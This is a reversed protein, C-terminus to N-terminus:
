LNTLLHSICLFSSQSVIVMEVIKKLIGPVIEKMKPTWAGPLCLDFQWLRAVIVVMDTVYDTDNGAETAGHLHETAAKISVAFVDQVDSELTPLGSPDSRLPQLISSMLHLTEGANHLLQRAPEEDFTTSHFL